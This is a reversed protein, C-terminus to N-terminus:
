KYIVLYTGVLILGAGILREMSISNNAHLIGYHDLAISALMQGLVILSILAATGIKSVTMTAIVVFFAGLLGGTFMWAPLNTLQNISPATTRSVILYIGLLITGTAFSIFAAWVSSSLEGALRANILAQLPLFLGGIFALFFYINLM